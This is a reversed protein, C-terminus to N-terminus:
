ISIQFKFNPISFVFEAIFTSLSTSNNKDILKLRGIVFCTEKVRSMEVDSELRHKIENKKEENIAIQCTM